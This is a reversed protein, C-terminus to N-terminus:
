RSTRRLQGPQEAMLRLFLTTFEARLHTLRGASPPPIQARPSLSVPPLSGSMLTISPNPFGTATIDFTPGATGVTFTANNASTFAPPQHVLTMATGTENGPTPDTTVASAAVATDTITQGGTNLDVKVVVQLAATEASAVSSKAFVINGTGGGVVGDSRSWGAPFSASVFTTNAPVANTVTVTQAADPGNNILNITYTINNGTLVPDPSDSNSTIQLDARAEGATFDSFSTIGNVALTNAAADVCPAPCNNVFYNRAGGTVQLVQYNAENGMVDPPDLYHFLLNATIGAGGETLTWYRQLSRSSVVSPQPGQATLVTLDGTGATVTADVPSYGNATGVDYTFSGNGGYTKKENGLIHGTTRSRTGASGISLTNAGTAINGSTLTLLGNVTTNSGLTLNGTGTRNSTLGSFTHSTTTGNINQAAPGNFIVTGSRPNFNAAAANNTFDGAITLAFNGASVDLTGANITLKTAVSIAGQLTKTGSGSITLNGYTQASNLTSVTQNTGSYEITSTAGISHANYNAPLPNTGGIKLTTGNSVTLTGGAATRNLTNGQLDFVGSTVTLNSAVATSSNLTLPSGGTKTVVLNNFTILSSNTISQPGGGNFNFTGTGANFTGSGFTFNGSVNTTSNNGTFNATGTMIFNTPSISSGTNNTWFGNTTIELDGGVTTNTGSVNVFSAASISSGATGATNGSFTISPARGM